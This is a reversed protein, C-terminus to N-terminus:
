FAVFISLAELDVKANDFVVGESYASLDLKESDMEIESGVIEDWKDKFKVFDSTRQFSIKGDGLITGNLQNILTDQSESAIKVEKSLVDKLHYLDRLKKYSISSVINMHGIAENAKLIQGVKVKM